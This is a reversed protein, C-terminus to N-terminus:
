FILKFRSVRPFQLKLDQFTKSFSFGAYNIFKPPESCIVDLKLQCKSVSIHHHSWKKLYKAIQIITLIVITLHWITPLASMKQRRRVIHIPNCETHATLLQQKNKHNVMPQSRSPRTKLIRSLWTPFKCSGAGRLHKVSSSASQQPIHRNASQHLANPSSLGLCRLDM